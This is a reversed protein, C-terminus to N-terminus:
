VTLQPKKHVRVPNPEQMTRPCALREFFIIDELRNNSLNMRWGTSVRIKIEQCIELQLVKLKM